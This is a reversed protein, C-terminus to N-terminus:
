ILFHAQDDLLDVVQLAVDLVALQCIMSPKDVVKVAVEEEPDSAKQDNVKPDTM